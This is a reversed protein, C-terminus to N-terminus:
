RRAKLAKIYANSDNWCTIWCPTDTWIMHIESCGEAPYTYKVFQDELPEAWLTTGYWSIPPNLIADHILDKPIFQKPIIKKDPVGDTPRWIPPVLRGPKVWQDMFDQVSKGHCMAAQQPIATGRYAFMPMAKVTTRPPNDWVIIGMLIQHVGPKGIGQMALLLVELRAPETSYPGRISGGGMMHAITTRRAAWEKALAKIIRSPVGTKEAAWEPTKPIGDEKGLVYEEFKDFGFTHTAM